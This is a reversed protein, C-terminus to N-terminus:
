QLSGGQEPHHLRRRWQLCIKRMCRSFRQRGASLGCGIGKVSLHCCQSNTLDLEDCQEGEEVIGNGCNSKVQPTVFLSGKLCSSIESVATKLFEIKGKLQNRKNQNTAPVKKLTAQLSKIQSKRDEILQKAALVRQPTKSRVLYGVKSSTNCSLGAITKLKVVQFDKSFRPIALLLICLVLVLFTLAVIKLSSKWPIRVNM